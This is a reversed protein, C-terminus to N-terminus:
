EYLDEDTLIVYVKGDRQRTYVRWGDVEGVLTTHTQGTQMRLAQRRFIRSGEKDKVTLEVTGEVETAM